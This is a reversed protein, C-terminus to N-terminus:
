CASESAASLRLGAILRALAGEDGVNGPFVMYPLGPWRSEPGLRWVPVGPLAQGLVWAARVDLADTALVSATIGGKAILYRPEHEIRRVVAVLAEAVTKGIELSAERDAGRLVERSTYVLADRGAALAGDVCEAVARVAKEREAPDIVRAVDLEVMTVTGLERVAALQATAIPVFSGCITLGGGSQRGDVLEGVTLLPRDSLGAAVKVFSAATRFLFRRGRREAEYVGSVFVEVDREHAANVVIVSDSALRQLQAAVVAPGGRRLTELGVSHVDQARIRGGTREEVWEPLRSRTYGFVPDRAYATQAAPVLRTGDQVYHVDDITFRGGEAFFPVLCVGDQRCGLAEELARALADVEAPFHGRLTSDSRSVVTLPNGQERVVLALRAVIERQVAQAQATPMSRSNTLIFLLPGSTAWVSRLDEVEWRTLVWTDYVTQCGTPDDDLVVIRRGSVAVQHAIQQRLTQDPWLPPLREFLAQQDVAVPEM